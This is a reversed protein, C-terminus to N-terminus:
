IIQIICNPEQELMYKRVKEENTKIKNYEYPLFVVGYDLLINPYYKLMRKYRPFQNLINDKNFEENQEIIIKSYSDFNRSLIGKIYDLKELDKITNIDIFWINTDDNERVNDNFRVIYDYKNKNTNNKNTNNKNTNNKNTNNKNTNNKESIILIKKSNDDIKSFLEKYCSVFLLIICTLLLVIIILKFLSNNDM